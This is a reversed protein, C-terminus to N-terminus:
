GRRRQLGEVSVPDLWHHNGHPHGGCLARRHRVRGAHLDDCELRRHRHRHRGHWHRPEPFGARSGACRGKRCRSRQRDGSCRRHKRLHCFPRCRPESGGAATVVIGKVAATNVKNFFGVVDVILHTNAVDAQVTLDKTCTTTAPNCVPQAIGNAINLGSLNSYNIVSASPLTGGYAFARLDGPGAPGVAVYNMEVATATAPIGCDTASGGQTAFGGANRVLFSQPTGAVLLGAAASRTDVVRCPTVPTFALDAAPDGLAAPSVGERVAAEIDGLGGANLFAELREVSLSLLSQRLSDRLRAGFDRAAATQRAAVIADALEGKRAAEQARAEAEQKVLSADPGSSRLADQASLPPTALVGVAVFLMWRNKM